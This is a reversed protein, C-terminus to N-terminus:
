HKEFAFRTHSYYVMHEANDLQQNLHKKFVDKLKTFCM